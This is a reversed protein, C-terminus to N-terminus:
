ITESKRDERVWRAAIADRFREVLDQRVLSSRGTSCAAGRIAILDIPRHPLQSLTEKLLGGAVVTQINAQKALNLIEQLREHDLHTPLSGAQKDFTDILLYRCSAATALLVIELPPPAQAQEADAYSVAVLQKGAAAVEQAAATWRERWDSRLACGSLGLKVVRIEPVELLRRAPSTAWDVLEGLAASICRRGAVAAVAARATEVEVPGLSGALAEKLDIWDAGGAMAVRAEVANRVSVLLKPPRAPVFSDQRYHDVSSPGNPMM